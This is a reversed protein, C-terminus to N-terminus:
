SQTEVTLCCVVDMHFYECNWQNRVMVCSQTEKTKM